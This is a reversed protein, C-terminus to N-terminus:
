HVRVGQQGGVGSNVGHHVASVEFIGNQIGCLFDRCCCGEGCVAVTLLLTPFTVVEFGDDGCLVRGRTKVFAGGLYFWLLDLPKM